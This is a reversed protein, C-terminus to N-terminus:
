PHSTYMSADPVQAAATSKEVVWPTAHWYSHRSRYLLAEFHARKTSYETNELLVVTSQVVIESALSNVM